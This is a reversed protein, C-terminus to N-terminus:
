ETLNRRWEGRLAQAIRDVDDIEIIWEAGTKTRLTYTACWINRTEDVCRMRRTGRMKRMDDDPLCNAAISEIQEVDLVRGFALQVLTM